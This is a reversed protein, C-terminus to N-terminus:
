NILYGKLFISDTIEFKNKLNETGRQRVLDQGAGYYQLIYSLLQM